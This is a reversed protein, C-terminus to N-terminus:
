QAKGSQNSDGGSPPSSIKKQAERWAKFAEYEEDKPPEFGKKPDGELPVTKAERPMEEQMQSMQYPSVLTKEDDVDFDDAEEFTEAAGGAAQVRMSELRVMRAIMSQLSEPKGFGVPVAVPTKNPIVEGKENFKAM